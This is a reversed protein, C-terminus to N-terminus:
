HSCSGKFPRGTSATLLCPAQAKPGESWIIRSNDNEDKRPAGSRHLHRPRQDDLEDIQMDIEWPLKGAVPHGGDRARRFPSVAPLSFKQGPKRPM